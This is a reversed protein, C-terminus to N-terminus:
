SVNKKQFVEVEGSEQDHLHDKTVDVSKDRLEKPFRISTHRSMLFQSCLALEAAIRTMNNPLTEKFPELSDDDSLLRIKWIM